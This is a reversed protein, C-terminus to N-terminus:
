SQSWNTHFTGSRDLRQYTHAGFYDRQAQILNAPLRARRVSDYYGLAASTALIPVGAAVAAGVVRRWAEQRAALEDSFGADLLLNSLAPDREFATKIRGLFQARIICGGKWIRALEGLKLDWKRLATALRTCVKCMGDYVCTYPRGLGEHADAGAITFRVVPVTNM